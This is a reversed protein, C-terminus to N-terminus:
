SDASSKINAEFFHSIVQSAMTGDPDDGYRAKRCARSKALYDDCDTMGTTVVDAKAGLVAGLAPASSQSTIKNEENVRECAGKVKRMRGEKCSIVCAAWDNEDLKEHAGTTCRERINGTMTGVAEEQAAPTLKPETKAAEALCSKWVAIYNDCATVGDVIRPANSSARGPAAGAAGSTASPGSASSGASPGSASSGASGQNCAFLAIASVLCCVKMTRKM